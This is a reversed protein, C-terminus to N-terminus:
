SAKKMELGLSMQAKCVPVVGRAYDKRLIQTHSLDPNKARWRRVTEPLPVGRRGGIIHM